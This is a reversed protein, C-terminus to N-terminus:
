KSSGHVIRDFAQITYVCIASVLLYRVYLGVQHSLAEQTLRQRLSLEAIACDVQVDRTASNMLDLVLLAGILSLVVAAAQVRPMKRRAAVLGLVGAAATVAATVTATTRLAGFLLFLSFGWLSLAWLVQLLSAGIAWKAAVKKPPLSGYGGLPLSTHM